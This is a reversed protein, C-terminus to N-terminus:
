ESMNFIVIQNEDLTALQNNNKSFTINMITEKGHEKNTEILKLEDDEYRYRNIIGNTEGTFFEKDNLKTMCWINQRFLYQKIFEKNEINIIYIFKASNKTFDTNAGGVILNKDYLLLCSHGFNEINGIQANIERTKLDWFTITSEQSSISAIENDNILIMDDMTIIHLEKGEKKYIENQKSYISINDALIALGENPLEIVKIAYSICKLTFNYIFKKNKENYKFIDVENFSCNILSNDKLQSIYSSKNKFKQEIKKFDKSYIKLERDWNAALRGDNLFYLYSYVHRKIKIKKFFSLSQHTDENYEKIQGYRINCKILFKKNKEKEDSDIKHTVEYLDDDGPSGWEKKIEYFTDHDEKKIPESYIEDYQKYEEPDIAPKPKLNKNGM